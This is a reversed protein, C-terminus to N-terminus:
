ELTGLSKQLDVQSLKVDIEADIRQSEAQLWATQAEMVTTPTIVGERFGLDATRLNEKARSINAQAMTLRKNAEDVRFTNQNVQLEIKERAEELELNAIATAGKAARVKYTVDGWNWIPVRVLVGVNWMGGFKKEFGNLLNPNSVMYGGTLAVMPLNGAKLLNTAQRTLGVTNELMRLEPRNEIATEIDLKPALEVVALSEVNEDALTIQENIPLGITQCLLMKSLVLGDNVKTLTMEAENVKVDVSLGDSKTAVGEDIMKHVDADFKKVLELYSEALKQNHRLSVVQWYIQDTSYITAQRKADASNKALAEGLDAMKNLAIIGGGMFVPQVLMVNGAFLNRTDSRLADVIAQGKSDIATAIDQLGKANMQHLADLSIGMSGLLVGIQEMPLMSTLQGLDQQIGTALNTGLHTLNEKQEDSLLSVERSTYQYTGYASVHPLYKTRASKRVNTAMDQKLKSIGIQKNNRLAMARCSDLTLLRQASATSLSYHFAFLILLVKVGWTVKEKYDMYDKNIIM